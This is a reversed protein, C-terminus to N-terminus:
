YQEWCVFRQLRGMNANCWGGRRFCAGPQLRPSRREQGSFALLDSHERFSWLFTHRDCLKRRTCACSPNGRCTGHRSQDVWMGDAWRVDYCLSRYWNNWLDNWDDLGSLGRRRFTQAPNVIMLKDASVACADLTSANSPTSSWASLGISRQLSLSPITSSQPLSARCESQIFPRVGCSGQTVRVEKSLSIGLLGNLDAKMKNFWREMCIITIERVRTVEPADSVLALPLEGVIVAHYKHLLSRFSLPEIGAAALCSHYRRQLMTDVLNHLKRSAAAINFREHWPLYM